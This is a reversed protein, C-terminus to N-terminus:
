PALDIRLVSQQGSGVEVEREVPHFGERHIRVRHRGPPLEVAVPTGGRPIGDVELTAWTSEGSDLTIVRLTGDAAAEALREPAKPHNAKPAVPHPMRKAHNPSEGASADRTAPTLPPKAEPPPPAPLPEPAPPRPIVAAVPLPPALPPPEAGRWLAAAIGAALLGTGAGAWAVWRRRGRPRRAPAGGFVKQKFGAELALLLDRASQFRRGPDREIARAVVQAVAPPVWPARIKIDPARERMQLQAAELTPALYPRVGSLLEYLVVGLAFLDARHDIPDGRLMEPPLYAPTGMVTGIGTLSHGVDKLIGFDLLTAVGTPGIFINAPKIDRHVFGNAHVLSVGECLQRMISLVEQEPLPLPTIRMYASLPMGDLYKMVIFPRRGHRGVAFVQVINPHELKATLRAEREFRVVAEDD